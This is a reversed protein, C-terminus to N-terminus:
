GGLNCRGIDSDLFYVKANKQQGYNSNYGVEILDGVKLNAKTGHFYTQAFPTAGQGSPKQEIGKKHEKMEM